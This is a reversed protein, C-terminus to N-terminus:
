PEDGEPLLFEALPRRPTPIVYSGFGLRLIAQPEPRGALPDCIMWRLDHHSVAATLPSVELRRRTATLWIRQLAIGAQLRDAQDDTKTSLVALSCTSDKLMRPSLSSSPIGDAPRVGGVWREREAVKRTDRADDALAQAELKLLRVRSHDEAWELSAGEASAAACLEERLLVTTVPAYYPMRNTRRSRIYPYLHILQNNEPSTGRELTLTVTSLCENRGPLPDLRARWGGQAAAVQLNFVVAGLSLLAARGDPDEAPLERAVDRYVDVRNAGFRFLWPQTNHMSPASVAAQLLRDRLETDPQSVAM